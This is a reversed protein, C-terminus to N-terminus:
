AADRWFAGQEEARSEDACQRADDLESEIADRWSKQQSQSFSSLEVEDGGIWVNTIEDFSGDLCRTYAVKVKAEGLELTIPKM